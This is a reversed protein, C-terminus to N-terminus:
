RDLSLYQQSSYLGMYAGLLAFLTYLKVHYCWFTLRHVLIDWLFTWQYFTVTSRSRLLKSGKFGLSYGFKKEWRSCCLLNLSTKVLILCINYDLQMPFWALKVSLFDFSVKVRHFFFWYPYNRREYVPVTYFTGCGCYVMFVYSPILGEQSLVM